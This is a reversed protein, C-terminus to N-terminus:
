HKSFIKFKIGGFGFMQTGGILDAGWINGKILLENWSSLDFVNSSKMVGGAHGVDLRAAFEIPQAKM